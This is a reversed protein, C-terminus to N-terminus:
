YLLTNLMNVFFDPMKGTAWSWDEVFPVQVCIVVPGRLEVHTDRWPSLVPDKGLYEDGVNHGGVYAVKGDVVAIKRQNRFNLRFRNGKGQTTNFPVIEVGGDRLEGLYEPSLDKSGLEDYLVYM